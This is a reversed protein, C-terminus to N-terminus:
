PVFLFENANFLARSLEVLGVSKVLAAAATAEDPAPLRGFALQFARSAQAAPEDGAERRVRDAFLLAQQLVFESHLLNLAQLPTTSETRRPAPQGADPCDFAGFVADNEMRVKLMYIMRRWEAPGWATKPEYVRVYNDNPQFVTFGPGHMSLDLAGSAALVCDRIAEAELRRPPYRWLLRSEADAALAASVADGSQRYAYSTAILRQVHKLSWGSGILENALWDLLEPHSPAAGMKGFDSPTAVLGTGFHYHWLRNVIVRATLPNRPSAIWAALHQRRQQEPADGPLAVPEIWTSLAAPAGPAIEERPQMPDGRYLRHTAAPQKFAGAYVTANLSTLLSERQRGLLKAEDLLAQAAARAAEPLTGIRETWANEATAGFPARDASAALM